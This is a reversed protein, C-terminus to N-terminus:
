IFSQYAFLFKCEVIYSGVGSGTGGGLSHLILFSQLSDCAEVAKRIKNMIKDHYMPGYENYGHAWNNGSGSVDKILMRDDFLEGIDSKLMENIM